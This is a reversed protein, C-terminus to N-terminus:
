LLLFNVLQAWTRSQGLNAWMDAQAGCRDRSFSCCCWRETDWSSGVQLYVTPVLMSVGGGRQGSKSKKQNKQANESKSKLIVRRGLESGQGCAGASCGWPKGYGM